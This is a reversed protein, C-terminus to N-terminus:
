WDSFFSFPLILQERRREIVPNLTASESNNLWRRRTGKRSWLTTKKLKWLLATSHRRIMRSLIFLSGELPFWHFDISILPFWHFDIVKEFVNNYIQQNKIITENRRKLNAMQENLWLNALTEFEEAKKGSFEEVDNRTLDDDKRKKLWKAQRKEIM